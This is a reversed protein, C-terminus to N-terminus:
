GVRRARRARGRFSARQRRHEPGACVWEAAELSFSGVFVGLRRFLAQQLASLLQYSWSMTARMSRQRVPADLAGSALVGLLHRNGASRLRALLALPPLQITRAAALEIALPVGRLLRCIAVIADDQSPDSLDGGVALSRERFMEVAPGDPELGLGALPVVREDRLTLRTRSTVILVLDPAHQWAEWIIGAAEVQHDAGLLRDFTDLVLVASQGTPGFGGGAQQAHTRAIDVARALTLTVDARDADALQVFVPQRGIRRAVEVALRTKGIGGTGTITVLTPGTNILATLAAVEAQRGFLPTRPPPVAREDDRRQVTPPLQTM